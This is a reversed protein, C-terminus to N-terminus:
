TRRAVLAAVEPHLASRALAQRLEETKPADLELVWQAFRGVHPGFHARFEELHASLFELYFAASQPQPLRPLFRADGPDRAHMGGIGGGGELHLSTLCEAFQMCGGLAAAYHLLLWELPAGEPLGRALAYGAFLELMATRRMVNGSRPSFAWWHGGPPRRFPALRRRPPWLKRRGYGGEQAPHGGAHLRFDCASVMSARLYRHMYLHREAFDRDPRDGCAILCVFEGSARQLAALLARDRNAEGTVLRWRLGPHAQAFMELTGPTAADCAAVLVECDPHTQRAIAELTAILTAQGASDAVVFSLREPAASAFVASVPLTAGLRKLYAVRDQREGPELALTELYRELFWLLKPRRQLLQHQTQPRRMLGGGADFAVLRNAGHIRYQALPHRVYHVIGTRLLAAHAIPNDAGTRWDATPLSEVIEALLARSYVQGAPVSFPYVLKAQRVSMADLGSLQSHQFWSQPHIAQHEDDYIELDHCLFLDTGQAGLAAIRRDLVELKDARYLDDSDLLCVYEHTALAVGSAIAAAQGANEQLRIRIRPHGAHRRLIERSEDTSGDDVVIVEMLESPYDQGLASALTRELYRAYNHNNIVISFATQAAM